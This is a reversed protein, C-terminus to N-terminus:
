ADKRGLARPGPEANQGFLTSEDVGLVRSLAEREAATVGGRRVIESLRSERLGARSAIEYQRHGSERIAVLLSPYELM